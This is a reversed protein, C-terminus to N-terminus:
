ESEITVPNPYTQLSNAISQLVTEIQNWSATAVLAVFNYRVKDRSWYILFGTMPTTTQNPPMTQSFNFTASWREPMQSPDLNQITFSPLDGWTQRLDREYESQEGAPAAVSSTFTISFQVAEEGPATFQASDESEDIQWGDPYNITFAGSPHRYPTAAITIIPTDPAGALTPQISQTSLLPPPLPVALDGLDGFLQSWALALLGFGALLPILVLAVRRASIIM